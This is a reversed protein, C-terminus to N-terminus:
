KLVNKVEYPADIDCTYDNIAVYEAGIIHEADQATPAGCIVYWLEWAIPKRAFAGQKDLRKVEECAWRLKATDAVKFAFPEVHTKPYDKAFPRRSAFFMIGDTEYEVITKIAYPSFYVDGFLYCTPENTPYFGNVWYGELDNYGHSTYDNDHILLPVGLDQLKHHTGSISIDKVGRERLLRITRAVLPEGNVETM